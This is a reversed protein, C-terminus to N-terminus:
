SPECDEISRGHGYCLVRRDVACFAPLSEFPCNVSIYSFTSSMLLHRLNLFFTTLVIPFWVMGELDNGGCRVSKGRCLGSPEDSWGRFIQGQGELLVGFALAVPLYGLVIPTAAKMGERFQRHNM